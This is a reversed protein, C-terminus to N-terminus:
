LLYIFLIVSFILPILLQNKSFIFLILLGKALSMLFFSSLDIFHFSNVVLMVFIHDSHVVIYWYFPFIGRFM